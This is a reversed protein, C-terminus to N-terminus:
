DNKCQINSCVTNAIILDSCKMSSYISRLGRCNNVQTKNGVYIYADGLFSCNDITINGIISNDAYLSRMTCNSVTLTGIKTSPSYFSMYEESSLNCNSIIVSEASFNGNVYIYGKSKSIKLTKLNCQSYNHDHYFIPRSYNYDGPLENGCNDITLSEIKNGNLINLEYLSKIDALNASGTLNNNPLKISLVRNTMSAAHYYTEVGYWLSIPKNTCWNDKRIWNDGNTSEYFAILMDREHQDDDEADGGIYLNKVKTPTTAGNEYYEVICDGDFIVMGDAPKGSEYVTWTNGKLNNDWLSVSWNETMASYSYGYPPTKSKIVIKLSSGEPVVARVSYEFRGWETKKVMVVKDSLINPGFRGTEPYIIGSIEIAKLIRWEELDDPKADSEVNIELLNGNSEKVMIYKGANDIYNVYYVWFKYNVELVEGDISTITMKQQVGDKAYIAHQQTGRSMLELVIGDAEAQTILDAQVTFFVFPAALLLLIKKM